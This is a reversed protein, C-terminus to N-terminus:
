GMGPRGQLQWAEWAAKVAIAGLVLTGTVMVPGRWQQWASPPVFMPRPPVPGPPSVGPVFAPEAVATPMTVPAPVPAAQPALADTLPTEGPLPWLSSVGALDAATRARVYGVEESKYPREVEITFAETWEMTSPMAQVTTAAVEREVLARLRGQGIWGRLIRAAVRANDIPNELDVTGMGSPVSDPRIQFLGVERAKGIVSPDLNSEYVANIVAALVIKKGIASKRGESLAACGAVGTVACVDGVEELMASQILDAMVLRDETMPFAEVNGSRYVNLTKGRLVSSVASDPQRIVDGDKAWACGGGGEMVALIPLHGDQPLREIEVDGCSEGVRLVTGRSWRTAPGEAGDFRVGFIVKREPTDWVAEVSPTVVRSPLKEIRREAIAVRADEALVSATRSTKPAFNETRKVVDLLIVHPVKEDAYLEGAKVKRALETYGAKHSAATAEGSALTYLRVAENRAKDGSWLVPDAGVCGLHSRVIAERKLGRLAVKQGRRLADAKTENGAAVEREIARVYVDRMRGYRSAYMREAPTGEDSDSEIESAEDVDSTSVSEPPPVVRDKRAKPSVASFHDGGLKKRIARVRQALGERSIGALFDQGIRRIDQAVSTAEAAYQGRKDLTVAEEALAEAAMLHKRICDPCQKTPHFLHDELLWLQKAAERLNHAPDLLPQLKPAGEPTEESAEDPVESRDDESPSGPTEMQALDEDVEDLLQDLDLSPDSPTTM